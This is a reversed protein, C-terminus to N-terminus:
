DYSDIKKRKIILYIGFLLQFFNILIPIISSAVIGMRFDSLEKEGMLQTVHRFTQLNLIFVPVKNSLNLIGEAVILLGSSLRVFPNNLINLHMKGEARKIYISLGSIIIIVTILWLLNTMFLHELNDTVSVNYNGAPIITCLKEFFDFISIIVIFALTIKLAKDTDKEIRM